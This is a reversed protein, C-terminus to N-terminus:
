SADGKIGAQFNHFAERLANQREIVPNYSQQLKELVQIIYEVGDPDALM